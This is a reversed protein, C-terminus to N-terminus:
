DEASDWERIEEKIDDTLLEPKFMLKKVLNIGIIILKDSLYPKENKTNKFLEDDLIDSYNLKLYYATSVAELLSAPYKEYLPHYIVIENIKNFIEVERRFPNFQADLNVVRWSNNYYDKTLEACYPGNKYLTFNYNMKIGQHKLLFALKQIILRDQFNKEEKPNRLKLNWYKLAILVKEFDNIM